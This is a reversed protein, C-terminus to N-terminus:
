YVYELLGTSDSSVKATLVATKSEQQQSEVAENRVESEPDM